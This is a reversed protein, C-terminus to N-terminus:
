CEEEIIIVTRNDRDIRENQDPLYPCSKEHFIGKQSLILRVFRYLNKLGNNSIVEMVSKNTQTKFCILYQMVIDKVAGKQRM